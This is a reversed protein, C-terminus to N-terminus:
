LVGRQRLDLLVAVTYLVMAILLMPAGLFVGLGVSWPAFGSWLFVLVFLLGLLACLVAARVLTNVRVSENENGHSM